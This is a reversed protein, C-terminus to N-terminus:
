SRTRDAGEDHADRLVKLVDAPIGPPGATLRGLDSLAEICARDASARTRGTVYESAQPVGPATTASRAPRARLLRQREERVPRVLQRHRGPRVGRRAAHEDRRRAGDFGTVTQIDIPSRRFRAHPTSIPPRVSAPPPWRSRRRAGEHMDDIARTAPSPRSSSSASEDAAKGIWSIKTSTSSSARAAAPAPNYILGTNFMGITLGDPRAAFIRTPASSTAPARCTACWFRSGPLHKELYRAILRGYTDYGGGPTPPSSTPSRRARSTITRRCAGARALAARRLRWGWERFGVAFLRKLM